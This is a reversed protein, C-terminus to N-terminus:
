GTMPEPPAGVDGVGEAAEVVLGALEVAHRMRLPGGELVAVARSWPASDPAAVRLVDLALARGLDGAPTGEDVARLVDLARAAANDWPRGVAFPVPPFVPTETRNEPCENQASGTACVRMAFGNHATMTQQDITADRVACAEGDTWRLLPPLCQCERRFQNIRDVCDQAPDGTSPLVALRCDARPAALPGGACAAPTGVDVPPAVVDRPRPGTDVIPAGLDRPAPVDVPTPRGVDVPAGGRDVPVPPLDRAPAAADLPAPATADVPVATDIPAADSPADLDGALHGTCGALAAAVVFCVRPLPRRM